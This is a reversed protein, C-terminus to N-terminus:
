WMLDDPVKFEAYDDDANDDAANANSLVIVTPDREAIKEAVKRPVIDHQGDIGVISLAGNILSQRHAETVLITKVVSADTYRFDLEGREAIRNLEVLQRIQAQIAKQQAAATKQRNLERDKALKEEDAARILEAAEDAVDVGKRQQKEKTNKAKKARVAQKKNAVGAKLLQDQLSNGV